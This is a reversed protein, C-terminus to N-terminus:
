RRAGGTLIKLISAIDAHAAAAEKRLIGLDANAAVIDKQVNAVEARLTAVGVQVSVIQDAQSDIRAVLARFEDRTVRDQLLQRVQGELAVTRAKHLEHIEQEQRDGRTLLRHHYLVVAGTVMSILLQFFVVVGAAALALSQQPLAEVTPAGDQALAPMPVGVLLMVLIVILVLGLARLLGDSTFRM